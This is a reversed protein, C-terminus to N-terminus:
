LGRIRGRGRRVGQEDAIQHLRQQLPTM